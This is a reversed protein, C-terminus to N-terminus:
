VAYKNATPLAFVDTLVKVFSFVYETLFKNLM